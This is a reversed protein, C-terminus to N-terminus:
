TPTGKSICKLYGRTPIGTQDAADQVIEQTAPRGAELCEQKTPWSKGSEMWHQQGTAFQVLIVFVFEM